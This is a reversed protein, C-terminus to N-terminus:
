RLTKVDLLQSNSVNNGFATFGDFQAVVKKSKPEIEVLVPQGPGAHCNGLVINGSPLVELTTVWALVIGPLDRQTLQWVIEGKPTVELLGHGNGTSLLTNGSPLRVAAFSKNGWAEPGHGGKPERDFLPVRYEWVVSGVSDYERLAGDGEHCVLYHGSALKRVLRTDTHPHPHEVKLKVEDLLKGSRDIEIIRAAGSEAIMVRGDALPQFAHVEIKKGANGNAQASDYSWVVERKALDIEALKAAGQQVMVSKPPAGNGPLVHIDHIGKWPLEWEVRGDVGVIVLKGNGQLILRHPFNTSTNPATPEAAQAYIGASSVLSVVALACFSISRM